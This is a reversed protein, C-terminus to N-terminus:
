TRAITIVTIPIFRELRKDMKKDSHKSVGFGGKINNDMDGYFSASVAHLVQSKLSRSAMKERGKM